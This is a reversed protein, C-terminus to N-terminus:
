VDLMSRIRTPPQQSSSLSSTMTGLSSSRESGNDSRFEIDHRQHDAFPNSAVEVTLPGNRNAEVQTSATSSPTSPINNTTTTTAAAASSSSLDRLQLARQVRHHTAPGGGVSESHIMNKLQNMAEDDDHRGGGHHGGSNGGSRKSWWDPKRVAVFGLEADVARERDRRKSLLIRDENKDRYGYIQFIVIILLIPSYGLGYFWAPRADSRLPSINWEWAIAFAYGVVVLGFPIVLMFKSPMIRFFKAVSHLISRSAQPTAHYHHIAHHLAYCIVLWACFAFIAGAKFRGDTASPKASSRQQEPSHQDEIATWSRPITMFFNQIEDAEMYEIYQGPYSGLVFFIFCVMFDFLYFVLPMYFEKRARLDDDRLLFNDRDYIQREQWSGRDELM